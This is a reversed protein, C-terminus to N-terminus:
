GILELAQAIERVQEMHFSGVSGFCLYVVSLPPQSDLWTIIADESTKDKTTTGSSKFNIVPGVHYIVPPEGDGILFNIAPSELERVTNVM